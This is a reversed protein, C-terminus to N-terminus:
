NNLADMIAVKTAPESGSHASIVMHLTSHKIAKHLRYAFLPPTVVDCRGQIITIDIDKLIHANNIIYNDELFCNELFYLIELRALPLASNDEKEITLTPTIKESPFIKLMSGEYDAWINAAELATKEDPGNLIKHYKNLLDQGTAGNFYQSMKEFQEPYYRETGSPEIFLDIEEKTGLFIGRMVLKTVRDPFAISYCLALTSGWSGGLIVFKEVDLYQRIKEIDEVLAQTNNDTIEGFPLSKGCGRQDFLIIRYKEPDFFNRDSSKTAFGPGGHIFLAPIGQPNGSEEIYLTHLDSVELMHTKYTAIYM